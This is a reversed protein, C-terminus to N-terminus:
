GFGVTNFLLNLFCSPVLKGASISLHGGPPSLGRVFTQFPFEVKGKSLDQQQTDLLIWEWKGVRSLSPAVTIFTPSIIGSLCVEFRLGYEPNTVANHRWISVRPVAEEGHILPSM